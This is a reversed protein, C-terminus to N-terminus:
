NDLYMNEGKAADIENSGAQQRRSAVHASYAFDALYAAVLLVALPADLQQPFMAVLGAVPRHLLKVVLIAGLGWGVTSELCLIGKYNFPKDTYDWWFDGFLRLQAQATLFEFASAGIAGLLFLLVLNDEFPRLLGYGALVGFGYIVCFPLHGAFGRNTVLRRKGISLVICELVYGLLSYTFFLLVLTPLEPRIALRQAVADFSM